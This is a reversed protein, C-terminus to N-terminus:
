AFRRARDQWRKRLTHLVVMGGAVVWAALTVPWTWAFTRSHHRFELVHRGAPLSVARHIRNARRIPEARAPGGDTSVSVKWDPHWSDALVVLGPAVLDAALVVRDPADSVLRCADAAPVTRPRGEPFLEAATAGEILVGHFLDPVAPNPFAIRKLLDIWPGWDHKGVAPVTAAQRVIRARPLASLNRVVVMLPPQGDADRTTNAIPLPEGRPAPGAYGGAKQEASWDELLSVSDRLEQEGAGIAFYEVGCLDFTRRPKVEADGSRLPCTLAEIDQPMATSREGIKECGRLWPAHGVLSEGIEQVYRNLDLPDILLSAPDIVAIRMRPALAALDPLRQEKLTELMQTGALLTDLREVCLERRDALALDAALVVTLVAPMSAAFRDTAFFRERLLLSTAIAFLVAHVGGWMVASFVATRRAEVSSGPLVNATGKM